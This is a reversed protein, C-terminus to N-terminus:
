SWCAGCCPSCCACPWAEPKAMSVRKPLLDAFLIFLSTVAVFSLLFGTTQAPGQPLWLAVVETLYPSLAGEGVVGGLIAVANLGIQTVTFYEGPQSQIHMVGEARKDGDELMQRLRVRRSAALAIESMSFFASTAILLAITLLSQTLTM